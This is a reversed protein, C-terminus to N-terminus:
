DFRKLFKKFTHMNVFVAVACGAAAACLVGAVPWFVAPYDSHVEAARGIIVFLMLAAFFASFAITLSRILKNKYIIYRKIEAAYEAERCAPISNKNLKAIESYKM